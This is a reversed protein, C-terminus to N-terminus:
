PPYWDSNGFGHSIMLLYIKWNCLSSPFYALAKALDLKNCHLKVGISQILVNPGILSINASSFGCLIMLCVVFYDKEKRKKGLWGIISSGARSTPQCSSWDYRINSIHRLGTHGELHLRFLGPSHHLFLKVMAWQLNPLRLFWSWM